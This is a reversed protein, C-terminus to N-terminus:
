RKMIAYKGASKLAITKVADYRRIRQIQKGPPVNETKRSMKGGFTGGLSENLGNRRYISPAKLRGKGKEPM